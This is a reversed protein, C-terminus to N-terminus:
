VVQKIQGNGAYHKHKESKWAKKNWHLASLSNAKDGGHEKSHSNEQKENRREKRFRGITNRDKSYTQLDSQDDHGQDQKGINKDQLDKEHLASGWLPHLANEINALFLFTNLSYM